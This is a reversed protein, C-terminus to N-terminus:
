DKASLFLIKILKEAESYCNDMNGKEYLWSGFRGMSYVSKNLLFSNIKALICNRDLTPIPYYYPILRYFTSIPKLNADTFFLNNVQEIVLKLVKDKIPPKNRWSIEIIFSSYNKKPVASPGFNSALCIRFFPFQKQPYYIWHWNSKIPLKNFGLGIILGSNYKLKKALSKLSDPGNSIQILEVLPISSILHDFCIKILSPGQKVVVMRQSLNINIVKTNFRINKNLFTATKQWLNGIGGNKPYYFQQHSGWNIEKPILKQCEKKIKDLPPLSVKKTLWQAGIKNLPYQWSKCNQPIMFYKAIGPGFNNNIWTKFNTIRHKDPCLRDLSQLGQLCEAKEKRPLFAINNQFPYPILRNKFYIFARREQKILDSMLASQCFNVFDESKTHIVHGGLDWTFGNKDKLSASLGGSYSNKELILFDKFGKQKFLYGLSLGSPGAGIIIIKKKLM